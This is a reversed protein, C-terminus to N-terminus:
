RAAASRALLQHYLSLTKDAASTWSFELEVIQRGAEGM